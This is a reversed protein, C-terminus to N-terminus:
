EGGHEFQIQPMNSFTNTYKLLNYKHIQIYLIFLFVVVDPVVALVVFIELIVIIILLIIIPTPLCSLSKQPGWIIKTPGMQLHKAWLVVYKQHVKVGRCAM